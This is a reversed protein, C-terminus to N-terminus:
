LNDYLGKKSISDIVANKIDSHFQPYAFEHTAVDFLYISHDDSIQTCISSIEEIQEGNLNGEFVKYFLYGLDEVQLKGDRFVNLYYQQDGSFSYIDKTKQKMKNNHRFLYSVVHVNARNKFLGDKTLKGKGNIDHKEITDFSQKLIELWGDKVYDAKTLDVCSQKSFARSMLLALLIVKETKNMKEKKSIIFYNDDIYNILDKESILGDKKEIYWTGKATITYSNLEEMGQIYELNLLPKLSPVDIYPPSLASKRLLSFRTADRSKLFYLLISRQKKSIKSQANEYLRRYFISLTNIEKLTLENM